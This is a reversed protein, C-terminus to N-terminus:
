DPRSILRHSTPAPFLVTKAHRKVERNFTDAEVPANLVTLSAVRAPHAAALEFGVPAGIDHVV